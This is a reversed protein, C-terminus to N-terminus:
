DKNRQGSASETPSEEPLPQPLLTVTEVPAPLEGPQLFTADVGPTWKGKAEYFIWDTLILEPQLVLVTFLYRKTKVLAEASGRLPRSRRLAGPLQPIEYVTLNAEPHARGYADVDRALNKPTTIDFDALVNRRLTHPNEAPLVLALIGAAFDACNNRRLTYRRQNPDANLYELIAADQEPTTDMTYLFLRRDFAAGISEEWDGYSPRHAVGHKDIRDPVVSLLNAERYSERLESESSATILAPIEAASGAGYFFTFAPVAMWDLNPKRLDHYRSVVVGLEGPLCPRLQTPTEACLNDLYIGAHGAPM